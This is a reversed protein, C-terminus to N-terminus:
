WPLDTRGWPVEWEGQRLARGLALRVACAGQRHHGLRAHSLVQGALLGPGAPVANPWATADSAVGSILFTWAAPTM